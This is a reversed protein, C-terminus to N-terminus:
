FWSLARVLMRTGRSFLAPAYYASAARKSIESLTPYPVILDTMSRLSARQKLAMVWPLILEGAHAGVITAGLVRGRNGVVIKIGGNRQRDTVARDNHAFEARALSVKGHVKRADEETLGVHALEPDTYTVRPIAAHDARVPLRFLAHRIVLSAHYGAVHTFQPAGTVDGIAYIRANTTKLRHDVTIGTKGFAVRAKELDLEEVNPRRGVAVLLHSGEVIESHQSSVLQMRIGAESQAVSTAQTKEMVRIGDRVLSDRVVAAMESDERPLIRDAEVVTVMSGLRRHAQALEVGVPGGGIVVLHPPLFSKEFINENTFHAVKDLGPIPPVAARSGTAIVFRRARIQSQGAEITNADIFRAPARIVRVGLGEFRAQSDTPAITAIADRVHAHVDAADIRPEIQGLGFAAASRMAQATSAAAILAKSPVCGTNLCDGGMEGKEILVVKRGLQAAGAAVSLGASGAGIVCIDVNPTEM